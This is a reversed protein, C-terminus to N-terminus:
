NIIESRFQAIASVLGDMKDGTVDGADILLDYAGKVAALQEILTAVHSDNQYEILFSILNGIHLQQNYVENRLHNLLEEHETDTLLYLVIYQTQAWGGSIIYGATKLQDNSELYKDVAEYADNIIVKASDSNGVNAILRENVVEDLVPGFGLEKALGHAAAYYKLAKQNDNNLLAHGFDAMYVGFNMAKRSEVHYKSRNELPNSLDKIYPADAAKLIDYTVLPSPINAVMTHFKFDAIESAPEVPTAEIEVAELEDGQGKRNEDGCGSIALLLLSLSIILLPLRMM